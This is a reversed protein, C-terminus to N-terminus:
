KREQIYQKLICEIEKNLLRGDEKAYKKIKELIEENVRFHYDSIM